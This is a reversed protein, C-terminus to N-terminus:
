ELPSQCGPQFLPGYVKVRNVTTWAFGALSTLGLGAVLVLANLKTRVKWDQFGIM